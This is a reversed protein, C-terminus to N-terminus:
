VVYYCDWGIMGGRGVCVVVDCVDNHSNAAKSVVKETDDKTWEVRGNSSNGASSILTM